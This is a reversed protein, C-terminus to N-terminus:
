SDIQERCLFWSTRESPRQLGMCMCVPDERETFTSISSKGLAARDKDWTLRVRTVPLVQKGLLTVFSQLPNAEFIKRRSKV